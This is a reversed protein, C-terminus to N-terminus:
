DDSRRLRFTLDVLGDEEGEWVVEGSRVITGGPVRTLQWGPPLPFVVRLPTPRLTTQLLHQVHVVLDGDILNWGQQSRTRVQVTRQQGARVVLRVDAVPGGRETGGWTAGDPLPALQCTTGCLISVLSLNDGAETFPTWPGLVARSHGVRPASNEFRATITAQTVGAPLLELRHEIHRTTFYDTKNGAVNNVFVGAFEGRTDPLNGAVGVQELRSQTILDRSFVRLHSGDALDYLMSVTALIDNDEIIDFARDFAATAVAGLVEKREDDDDFYDYADLAVHRLIRDPHLTAVGPVHLPGSRQAIREFTVPDAMIMGDLPENGMAEWLDLAVKASAPFDPTLNVNRWQRLGGLPGYREAYEASPPRVDRPAPFLLDIDRFPTFDLRGEDATLISWSGMLGGAGRLESLTNAALLYRRPEDAGLFGPLVELLAAADAAQATVPTAISLYEHRAQELSALLSAGGAAEVAATTRELTTALQRVPAQLETLYDTSLTGRPSERDDHVIVTAADLVALSATGVENVADTLTLAARHNPRAVPVLALPRLVPSRLRDAARESHELGVALHTRAGSLDAGRLRSETERVSDRAADVAAAADLVLTAALAAWLVVVCAGALLVTVTWRQQARSVDDM